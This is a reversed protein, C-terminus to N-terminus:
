NCGEEKKKKKEFILTCTGKMEIGTQWIKNNESNYQRFIM